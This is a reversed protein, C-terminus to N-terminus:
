FSKFGVHNKLRCLLFIDRRRVEFFIRMIRDPKEGLRRAIDNFENPALIHIEYLRDILGPLFRVISDPLEEALYILPKNTFQMEYQYLLSQQHVSSITGREARRYSRERAHQTHESAKFLLPEQRSIRPSRIAARSIRRSRKLFILNGRRHALSLQFIWRLAPYM